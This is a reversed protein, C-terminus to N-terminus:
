RPRELQQRMCEPCIGHTFTAINHTTFYGELQQWYGEDDRIKKCWACMPILARLQQLEDLAARLEDSTRREHVLLEHVRATFWAITTNAVLRVLANWHVHWWASYRHGTLHDTALWAGAALLAMFTGAPRGAWWTAFAVPAFYFVFLSFEWGTAHDAFAIAVVQLAGLLWATRMTLRSKTM